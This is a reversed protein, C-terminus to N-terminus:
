EANETTDKYVGLPYYPIMKEEIYKTAEVPSLGWNTPCAAVVEILSFGKNAKQIEFAKRLARKAKIINAPTNVSVREVYKAGDLSSILEAVRIPYGAKTVDRGENCTTARMGPLTTPAMQGGTMGYIGNNVFVVTISTGRGAAHVIEGMGISALDGDGQYTFVMKDPRLRKIATATAPPRGHACQISDYLMYEYAVVACGVPSTFIANGAEGMEELVEAITRHIIGHSCGPCYHSVKRCIDKPREFVVQSM